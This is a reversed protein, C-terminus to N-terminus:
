WPAQGVEEGGSGGVAVQTGRVVGVGPQSRASGGRCTRGRGGRRGGQAHPWPSGQTRHPPGLGPVGGRRGPPLPRAPGRLQPPHHLRGATRLHVLRPRQLVARHRPALAVVVDDQQLRLGHGLDGTHVPVQRDLHRARLLGAAEVVLAFTLGPPPRATHGCVPGRPGPPPFPAGPGGEPEQAGGRPQGLPVKSLAEWCCSPSRGDGLGSRGAGGPVTRGAQGMWGTRRPGPRM